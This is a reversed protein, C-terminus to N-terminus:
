ALAVIHVMLGWVQINMIFCQCCTVCHSSAHCFTAAARKTVQSSRYHHPRRAATEQTQIALMTDAFLRAQLNLERIREQVSRPKVTITGAARDLEGRM